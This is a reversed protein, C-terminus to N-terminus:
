YDHGPCLIKYPVDILKMISNKMEHPASTPLDVRGQMKSRFFTDGTFLAKEKEYWLCISGVTHGPTEIVKLGHLEKPLPLIQISSLKEAVVADLVTGEPNERFAQIEEPSAYFQAQPFMDFNGSHDYHLHTFIVVDVKDFDVAKGMFNKLHDRYTRNGTDIIIKKAGDILYVNSKDGGTFKWISEGVKGFVKEM